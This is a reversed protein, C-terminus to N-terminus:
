RKLCLPSSRLHVASSIAGIATVGGDGSAYSALEEPVAALEATRSAGEADVEVSVLSRSDSAVSSLMVIDVDDSEDAAVSAGQMPRMQAIVSAEMAFETMIEPASHQGGSSEGNGSRCLHIFLMSYAAGVVIVVIIVLKTRDEM